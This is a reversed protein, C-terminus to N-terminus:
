RDDNVVDEWAWTGVVAHDADGAASGGLQRGQATRQDAVSSRRGVPNPVFSLHLGPCRVRQSPHPQSLSPAPIHCHIHSCHSCLSWIV